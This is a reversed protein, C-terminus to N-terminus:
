FTKIIVTEETIDSPVPFTGKQSRWQAKWYSAFEAWDVTENKAATFWRLPEVDWSVTEFLWRTTLESLHIEIWKRDLKWTQKTTTTIIGTAAFFLCNNYSHKRSWIECTSLRLLLFLVFHGCKVKNPKIEKDKLYNCKFLLFTQIVVFDGGAESSINLPRCELCLVTFHVIIM